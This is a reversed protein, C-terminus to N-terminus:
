WHLNRQYNRLIDIRQSSSVYGGQVGLSPAAMYLIFLSDRGMKMGRRWCGGFSHSSVCVVAMCAQLGTRDLMDAAVGHSARFVTSCKFGGLFPDVELLGNPVV